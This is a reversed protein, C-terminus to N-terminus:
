ASGGAASGSLAGDRADRPSCTRQHRRRNHSCLLAEQDDPPEPRKRRQTLYTASAGVWLAIVIWGAAPAIADAAAAVPNAPGIRALMWGAAAVATLAAVVVRVGPYAPTRALLCLSPLVLAVAVLQMAEIGLNFGLLSLALQRGDLNLDALTLAFAMGHVLGFGAAVLTERGPFLPRIAHIAAVLISAAILVEVPQQPIPLRGLTSAALALSHGVTFAATITTIRRVTRRAPAPSSWGRATVLLPAPLLLTLLFLLHDTGERIHSIGLAVMTTFGHWTSGKALDVTLPPVQGTVPDVRIAGVQQTAGIQGASWDRRISVLVVHTIVQHVVADYRLQFTRIDSSTPPTLRAHAILEQYTGNSTQRASGLSLDGITVTWSRGSSTVQFHDHLYTRLTTETAAELTSRPQTGFDVGGAVALDQLPIRVEADIRDQHVDLLVATYPMEHAAASQQGVGLCAVTLLLGALVTIIRRLM